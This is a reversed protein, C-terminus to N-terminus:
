NASATIQAAGPGGNGNGGGLTGPPIPPALNLIRQQDINQLTASVRALEVIPQEDDFTTHTAKTVEVNAVANSKAPKGTQQLQKQLALRAEENLQKTIKKQQEKALQRQQKKLKARDEKSEDLLIDSYFDENTSEIQDANEYLEAEFAYDSMVSHNDKFSTVALLSSAFCLPGIFAATRIKM